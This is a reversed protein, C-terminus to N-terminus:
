IKEIIKLLNELDEKFLKPYVVTFNSNFKQLYARNLHIEDYKIFFEGKYKWTKKIYPKPQFKKINKLKDFNKSWITCTFFDSNKDPLSFSKRKYTDIDISFNNIYITKFYSQSPSLKNNVTYKKEIILNDLYNM